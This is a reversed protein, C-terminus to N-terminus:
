EPCQNEETSPDTQQVPATITGTVTQTGAKVYVTVVDWEYYGSLTILITRSDTATTSYYPVFPLSSFSTLAYGSGAAAKDKKEKKPKETPEATPEVDEDKDGDETEYGTDFKIGSEGNKSNTVWEYDESTTLVKGELGPPLGLTWHSISPDCMSTVKYAATTRDNEEDYTRGVLEVVHCGPYATQPGEEINELATECQLDGPSTLGDYTRQFGGTIFSVIAGSMLLLFIGVPLIVSYEAMAQGGQWKNRRTTHKNM